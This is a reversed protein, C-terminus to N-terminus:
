GCYCKKIVRKGIVAEFHEIKPINSRVKALRNLENIWQLEDEKRTPDPAFEITECCRNPWGRDAKVILVRKLGLFLDEKFLDDLQHGRSLAISEIENVEPYSGISDYVDGEIYLIDVNPRFYIPRTITHNNAGKKFFPKFHALAVERSERCTHLLAPARASCFFTLGLELGGPTPLETVRLVRQDPLAFNWILLRLEPALDMFSKGNHCRLKRNYDEAARLQAKLSENERLLDRIIPSLDQHIADM